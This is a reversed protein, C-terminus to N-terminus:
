ISYDRGRKRGRNSIPMLEFSAGTSFLMLEISGDVFRCEDIISSGVSPSQVIRVLGDLKRLKVSTLVDFM